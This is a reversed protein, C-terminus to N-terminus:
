ANAYTKEQKLSLVRALNIKLNKIKNTDKIKHLALEMKSKVIQGAFDVGLKDLEAVTKSKLDNKDKAKM